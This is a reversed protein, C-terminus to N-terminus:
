ARRAPRPGRVSRGVLDCLRAWWLRARLSRLAPDHPFRRMASRLRGAAVAYRRCDIADLVLNSICVAAEADRPDAGEPIRDADADDSTTAGGTTREAQTRMLRRAIGRGRRRHGFTFCLVMLRRLLRRTHDEADSPGTEDEADAATRAPLTQAALAADLLAIADHGAGCRVFLDALRLVQVVPVRGLVPRRQAVEERLLRLATETRNPVPEAVGQEADEAAADLLITALSTRVLPVNPDIAYATELEGRAHDSRGIALLILGLQVHPVALAPNLEAARRYKEIAEGIRHQGALLDGCEILTQVDGPHLRLEELYMRLGADVTGGEALARGLRSRVRPLDPAQGMAERFCWAARDHLERRAQLDGMAVLSLPMRPLNQQAVYYDTEAEDFQGVATRAEILRAWAADSSRDLTTASELPGIAEDHRGLRCLVSGEALRTEARRPLRLAADRYSRLADDLRGAAELTLGLNFHLEGRGPDAALAKRLEAEAEALRGRRFLEAAREAAREASQRRPGPRDARSGDGREGGDPTPDDNQDPM